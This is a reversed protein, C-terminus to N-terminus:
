RLRRRGRGSPSGGRGLVARLDDTVGGCRGGRRRAFARQIGSSVMVVMRRMWLPLLLLLRLLLLLLLARRRRRRRVAGDQGSNAKGRKRVANMRTDASGRWMRHKQRLHRRRSREDGVAILNAYTTSHSADDDASGGCSRSRCRRSGTRRRRRVDGRRSPAM